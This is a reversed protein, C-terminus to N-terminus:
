RLEYGCAALRARVREVDAEEAVGDLMTAMLQQAESASVTPGPTARAVIAEAVSRVEADTLRRRLLALLPVRDAPPVGEPYGVQLWKFAQALLGTGQPVTDIPSVGEPSEGVVLRQVNTSLPWGAAALRAAVERLEEDDPAADSVKTIAERITSLRVPDPDAREIEALVEEFEDETLSRRLLALLPTYDKPPVGEPYGARLWRLVQAIIGETM